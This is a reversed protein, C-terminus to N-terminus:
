GSTRLNEFKEQIKQINIVERELEKKDFVDLAEQEVDVRRFINGSNVQFFLYLSWLSSIGVLVLVIYILLTWDKEKRSPSGIHGLTKPRIKKKFIKNFDFSIRKM